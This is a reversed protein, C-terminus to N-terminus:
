AAVSGDLNTGLCCRAGGPCRGVRLCGWLREAVACAALWEAREVSGVPALEPDFVEWWGLGLAQLVKDATGWMVHQREGGCLERLSKPAVGADRAM